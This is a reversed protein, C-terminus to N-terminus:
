SNLEDLTIIDPEISDPNANNNDPNIDPTVPEVPTEVSNNKSEWCNCLNEEAYCRWGAITLCKCESSCIGKKARMWEKVLRAM